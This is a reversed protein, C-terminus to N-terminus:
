QYAGTHRHSQVVAWVFASLAIIIPTMRFLTLLIPWTFGPDETTGISVWDGVRLIVENFVIWILAGVIVVIWFMLYPYVAGREDSPLRM